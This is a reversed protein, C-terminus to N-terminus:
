GGSGKAKAGGKTKGKAKKKHVRFRVQVTRTQVKGGRPHFAVKANAYFGGPEHALRRLKRNLALVMRLRGGAGAKARAKAIVKSKAGVELASRAAANLQGAAPVFATLRVKGNPLSVATVLLGKAVPPTPIPPPSIRSAGESKPAQTTEVLFVDGANNGDNEVLNAANSAFAIRGDAGFSPSTVGLGGVATATGATSAEGLGRFGHTIRQLTEGEFTILYLETLGVAVPAATILNPPALPFQQRATSFAIQGAQPSIALDFVNGNLALKTLKNAESDEEQPHVPVQRTLQRLAQKRDLGPHMDAVFLNVVATPAGLLAVEYGDASLEPVADVNIAGLWGSSNPNSNRGGYRLIEPFPGQCAPEALTGTVGPCGPALPDGGGVVRRTAATPGEGIRRWLPEDYPVSNAADEAFATAEENLVPVQQPLNTGLWAVTSGDASISAGHLNDVAEGPVEAGGEVPLATMQGLPDRQASVLTDCGSTRDRVVVQLPPTPAGPTSGGSGETLNSESTVVFAVKSGDASLAVRGSAISGGEKAAGAGKVYAIGTPEGAAPQTIGAECTAGPRDLASALEFTPPSTSMDAVYVDSTATGLDDAPDLRAATTFSIYRGDASISPATAVALVAERAEVTYVPVIAGTAVEERFVGTLGGISGQFAVFRGDASLAPAVAETAQEQPDKSILSVPGVSVAAASGVTVALAACTSLALLALRAPASM